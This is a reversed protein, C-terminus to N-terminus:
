AGLGVEMDCTQRGRGGSREGGSAMDGVAGVAGVARRGRVAGVTGVVGGVLQGGEWLM